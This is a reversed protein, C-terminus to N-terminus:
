PFGAAVQSLLTGLKTGVDTMAVIGAISILMAVLSYEIATVARKDSLLRRLILPM